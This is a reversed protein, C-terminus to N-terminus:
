TTTATPSSSFAQGFGGNQGNEWTGAGGAWTYAAGGSGLLSGAFTLPAQFGGTGATGESNFGYFRLSITSLGQYAASSGSLALVVNTGTTSTSDTMSLTGSTNSFLGSAGLSSYSPIPAAYADVSSRWEFSRPGTGSRGAGFNLTELNFTFGPSATLTFEFYKSLDVTGSLTGVVPDLAFGTSRFNGGSSTAPLNTRTLNGVTLNLIPTGNYAFPSATGSSGSFTFVGTFPTQAVALSGSLLLCLGAAWASAVPMVRPGRLRSSSSNHLRVDMLRAPDRFRTGRWNVHLNHLAPDFPRSLRSFATKELVAKM